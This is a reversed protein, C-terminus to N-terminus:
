REDRAQRRPACPVTFRFTTGRGVVSEVWISGGHAEVIGKAIAMGLGAGSASTRDAQWFRDFVRIVNEPPIGAGSDEISIEAFDGTRRARLAIYGHVPTFKLANGIINSLVQTLRDRDGIAPPLGSEVDCTISIDRNRAQPEFQELTEDLLADIHVRSPKIALTGSEISTVDLLDRILKDMTMAARQIIGLTRARHEEDLPLELMTAAAMVITNVPNRLDHAVIGLMEDRARIAHEAEGRAKRELALLSERESTARRQAAESRSIEMAHRLSSALREATLSAKPLYDAAGAKMIEVAVEEDGRGTFIVVPLDPEAARIDHILSLGNVGPIYYDLLVIDYRAHGLRELTNAATAAEDISVASGLAKLCRRVALRDFQDDDVLLVRLPGADSRLGTTV